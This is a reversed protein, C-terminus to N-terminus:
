HRKTLWRRSAEGGTRGGFRQATLRRNSHRNPCRFSTSPRPFEIWRRSEGEYIINGCLLDGHGLVIPSAVRLAAESSAKLRAGVTDLDIESLRGSSSASALCINLYRAATQWLISTHCAGPARSPAVAGDRHDAQPELNKPPDERGPSPGQAALQGALRCDAALSPKPSAPSTCGSPSPLPPAAGGEFLSLLQAPLALSHLRALKAAILPMFPGSCEAARLARGPLFSEIQGGEFSAFIKKSLGYTSLLMDVGKQRRRDILLDTQEGFFRVVVARTAAPYEDETPAEAAGVNHVPEKDSAGKDRPTRVGRNKIDEGHSQETIGVAPATTTTSKTEPSDVPWPNPSELHGSCPVQALGDNETPSLASSTKLDETDSLADSWSCTRRGVKVLMNTIGGSLCRADLLEAAGTAKGLVDTQSKVFTRPLGVADPALTVVLHVARSLLSDTM